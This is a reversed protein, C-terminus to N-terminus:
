KYTATFWDFYNKFDNQFWESLLNSYALAKSMAAMKAMPDNAIDPGDRLTLLGKVIRLFKIHEDVMTEPVEVDLVQNSFIELRDGLDSFYELDDKVNTNGLNVLHSFFDEQFASFDASTTLSTPSNNLLLYLVQESYKTLDKLAQARKEEENLASYDQKLIKIQSRDIEPLTELSVTNNGLSEVMQEQVLNNIDEKTIGSRGKEQVLAIIKKSFATTQSSNNNNSATEEATQDTTTTITVIKDGPAPKLPDYGSKIEIGDSYGDGDTDAVVYDTGYLKEESDILGDCDSDITKNCTELNADNTEAYTLYNFSALLVCAMILLFQKIYKIKIYVNSM